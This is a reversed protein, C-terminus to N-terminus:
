RMEVRSKELMVALMAELQKDTSCGAAIANSPCHAACTGCGQCLAPNVQALMRAGEEHSTGMLTSIPDPEVPDSVEVLSVALYECVSECTGCGVCRSSDVQAVNYDAIIQGSGLLVGVKTAVAKAVLEADGDVSCFFLGPRPTIHAMQAEQAPALVLVSAEVQWRWNDSYLTITFQGLSGEIAVPIEESQAVALGQMRLANACIVAAEGEGLALVRGEIEVTPRPPYTLLSARAAAAAILGRAKVMALLPDDRHAWACQERINVFEVPLDALQFPIGLLNSKCRVRQFTCSDCVQDLSCCSCAALVARNLGRVKMSSTILAAAEPQCAFSLSQAYNVNPLSRVKEVLADVELLGDIKDGCKCVFVGIQPVASEQALAPRLQVRQRHHALDVMVQAVVSLAMLPNEGSLTYVKGETVEPVPPAEDDAWILVGSDM